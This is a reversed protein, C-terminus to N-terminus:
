IISLRRRVSRSVPDSRLGELVYDLTPAPPTESDSDEQKYVLIVPHYAGTKGVPNFGIKMTYTTCM